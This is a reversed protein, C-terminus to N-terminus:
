KTIYIAYWVVAYVAITVYWFLAAANVGEAARGTLQGGLARFGMVLMFLLGAGIMATHAGTIAYILVAQPSDSIGLNMQQWLYATDVIASVGFILTWFLAFYAHSRDENRLAYVAWAVTVASMLLSVLAVNGPTLPLVTDEPLWRSETTLYQSRLETYLAVMGVIAAATATSALATGVLLVRPRPPPAAPLGSLTELDGSGTPAASGTSATVAPTAM